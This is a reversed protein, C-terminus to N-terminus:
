VVLCGGLLKPGQFDQFYLCSQPSTGSGLQKYFFHLSRDWPKKLQSQNTVFSALTQGAVTWPTPCFAHVGKKLIKQLEDLKTDRQLSKQVLNCIKKGTDFTNRM